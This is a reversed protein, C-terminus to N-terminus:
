LGGDDQPTECASGGPFLGAGVSLAAKWFLAAQKM